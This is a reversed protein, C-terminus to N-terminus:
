ELGCVDLNTLGGGLLTSTKVKQRRELFVEYGAMTNLQTSTMPNGHLNLDILPTDVFISQPLPQPNTTDSWNTSTVRIRNNKLSLVKLNKLQGMEEPLSVIVNDDINLETLAGLNAIEPPVVALHNFSLDLKELKVLTPSTVSRPVTSLFNANIKLQKLSTPLKEPLPPLTSRVSPSQSVKNHHHDKVAVKGLLNNGVSLNQLKSLKEIPALSGAPLKNQELNLSKLQILIAIRPNLSTLANKSLDLTKLNTIRFHLFVITQSIENHVIATITLISDERDHLWERQHCFHVYEFIQPPCEELKHESM